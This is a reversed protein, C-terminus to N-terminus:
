DVSRDSIFCWRSRRPVIRRRMRSDSKAYGDLCYEEEGFYFDLLFFQFMGGGRKKKDFWGRYVFFFVLNM